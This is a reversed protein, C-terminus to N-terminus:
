VLRAVAKVARSWSSFKSMHDAISTSESTPLVSTQLAQTKCIEPDGIKLDPIVQEPTPLESEWLFMPGSFWDSRLLETVTTGRSAGDAPNRDTPVYHWQQPTTSNHIKQLRNAVFTHFRRSDNNIYSLVVKSDTWFYEKANVCSLEERLM